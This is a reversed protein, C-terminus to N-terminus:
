LAGPGRRCLQEYLASIEQLLREAGFRKLAQLRGAVGLSNRLPTDQILRRLAAVLGELDGANVLIGYRLLRYGGPPIEMEGDTSEGLLDRVGGVDTAVVARAAAMAQILTAPTGENFSTLCVVDLEGYCSRPDDRWGTFQVMGTLGRARSEERLKDYLPGDGMVLARIPPAQRVLQEVARLFLSPNKIPVLRGILGIRVPSAGNPLELQSLGELELGLPIVRWQSEQGIGKKVLEDRITPSVAILCDTRHALWREVLLFLRSLWRPFYGKLVHGHFTHILIIKKRSGAKPGLRWNTIIGALRGVTGAKAMHTHLIHPHEEKLIKVLRVLSLLDAPPRISRRLSKLRVIRGPHGKLSSSLDGERPESPGVVLCTSFAKPDLRTTLLSVHIAPGGINLRTLVRVIRIM